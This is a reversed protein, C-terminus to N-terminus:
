LYDCGGALLDAFVRLDRDIVDICDFAACVALKAEDHRREIGAPELGCKECTPTSRPESQTFTRTCPLCLAYCLLAGTCVSRLGCGIRNTCQALTKLCDVATKM